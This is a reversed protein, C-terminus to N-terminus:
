WAYNVGLLLTSDTSERGPAPRSEWDLNMQATASLAATFPVRLGTKSHVVVGGERLNRLGDHEHFLELAPWPAYTARLGWGLAPYDRDEGAERQESVYDLGARLSVGARESQVLEAGMGAGAASRLALDKARDHELAGRVYLFRATSLFRDHSGTARWASAPQAGPESRREVKGGLQYRYGAARATLEADGYLRRSAANGSAYSASLAARGTYTTGTGSEHPKPNLYAIRALDMGAQLRRLVPADEGQLMVALPRDSEIAAVERGELTIEGAYATRVGLKGGAMALAEGSIRDGNRMLIVDAHAGRLAACALLCALLIPRM